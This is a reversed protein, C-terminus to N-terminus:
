PSRPTAHAGPTRRGMVAWAVLGAAVLAVGAAAEAPRAVVVHALTWGTVLLYALPTFPYGWARYPRALAPERWRLLFLTAVTAVSALGLLFGSFVLVREFTGTLIFGAAVASQLLIATAPIGDATTRALARLPPLDEGIVQLVRPGALTMASVTSVLLLSLV